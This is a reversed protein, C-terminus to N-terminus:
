NEQLLVESQRKYQSIKNRALERWKHLFEIYYDQTEQEIMKYNTDMERMLSVHREHMTKM